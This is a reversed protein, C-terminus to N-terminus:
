GGQAPTEAEPRATPAPSTPPAGPPAGAAPAPAAAPVAEEGGWLGPMNVYVYGAAAGMFTVLTIAAAAVAERIRRRRLAKRDAELLIGPISALVPIRLSQQLARPNHFSSDLAEALVALGMGLAIGLLLGLVVILPRNPSIPEPPPFAPELVRFQEGKQRREMNAAVGATLRKNSYSQFSESLSLYERTLADLQEAVRPTQALREQTREVEEKLRELEQREAEARLESRRAEAQAEQEAVSLPTSDDGEGEERGRLEEIEALTIVVDPHKDTFGRARLEGLQLELEQKRMAPTVTRGVIDGRESARAVTAQQRYFVADSEAEALRRQGERQAELGRQLLFENSDRDEPLRGANEAKVQAVQAEVERLRSALRSLESDIFEATDGSVQVRDRIHEDIFDNALRNTVAAAMAPSEHRFYLRFTNIEIDELRKVDVALEPLVPEIRIQDRMGEIIEERTKEESEDAYLKLDDIVRSLRARSLIQMTMLHLRNALDGEELGGEVLKKSVVQPEVLLTTYAESQDRLVAAIVVSTLFMLGTVVGILKGRRRLFATVDDPRLTQEDM